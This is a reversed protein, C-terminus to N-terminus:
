VNLEAAIEAVLLVFLINGDLAFPSHKVTIIVVVLELITNVDVLAVCGTGQDVLVGSNLSFKEFEQPFLGFAVAVLLVLMQLVMYGSYTGLLSLLNHFQHKQFREM